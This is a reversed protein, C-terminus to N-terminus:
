CVQGIGSRKNPPCSTQFKMVMLLLM